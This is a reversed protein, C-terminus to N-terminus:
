IDTAEQSAVYAKVEEAQQLSLLEPLYNEMFESLAGSRVYRCYDFLLGRADNELTYDMETGAVNDIYAMGRKIIGTMKKDLGEENWTIDMENKVDELLQALAEATM